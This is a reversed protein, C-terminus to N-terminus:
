EGLLRQSVYSHYSSQLFITLLFHGASNRRVHTRSTSIQLHSREFNLIHWLLRWPAKTCHCAHPAKRFLEGRDSSRCWAELILLIPMRDILLAAYRFNVEQPITSGRTTACTSLLNLNMIRRFHRIFLYTPPLDTSQRHLTETNSKECDTYPKSRGVIWYSSFVPLSQQRLAM